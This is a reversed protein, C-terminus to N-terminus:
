KKETIEIKYEDNELLQNLTTKVGKQEGNLYELKVDKNNVGKYKLEVKNSNITTKYSPIETYFVMTLIIVIIFVFAGVGKIGNLNVEKDDNSMHKVKYVKEIINVLHETFTTFVVGAITIILPIFFRKDNAPINKSFCFYMFCLLFLGGIILLLWTGCNYVKRKEIAEPKQEVYKNLEKNEKKLNKCCEELSSLKENKKKLDKKLNDNEKKLKFYNQICRIM